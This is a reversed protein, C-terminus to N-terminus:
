GALVIALRSSLVQSCGRKCRASESGVEQEQVEKLSETLLKFEITKKLELSTQFNWQSAKLFLSSSASKRRDESSTAHM